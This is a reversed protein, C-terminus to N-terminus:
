RSVAWTIGVVWTVMALVTLGLGVQNMWRRTHTKDKLLARINMVLSGVQILPHLFALVGLVVGAVQMRKSENSQTEVVAASRLDWCKVCLPPAEPRTRRECDVCVFSGCRQCAWAASVGPHFACSGSVPAAVTM